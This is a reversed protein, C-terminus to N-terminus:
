LQSLANTRGAEWRRAARRMSTAALRLPLPLGAAAPPSLPSLDRLELLHAASGAQGDASRLGDQDLAKLASPGAPPRPVLARGRRRRGRGAEAAPAASRRCAPRWTM